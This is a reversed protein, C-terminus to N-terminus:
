SGKNHQNIIPLANVVVHSIADATVKFKSILAIRFSHGNVSCLSFHTVKKASRNKGTQRHSLAHTQKVKLSTPPLAPLGSMASTVYVTSPCNCVTSAPPCPGPRPAPGGLACCGAPRGPTCHAPATGTNCVTWTRPECLSTGHLWRRGSVGATDTITSHPWCRPHQGQIVFQGSALSVSPLATSGADGM